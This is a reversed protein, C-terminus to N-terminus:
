LDNAKMKAVNLEYGQEVATSEKQFYLSQTHTCLVFGSLLYNAIKVHISKYTHM